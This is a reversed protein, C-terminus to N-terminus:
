LTTFDESSITNASVGELIAIEEGGARIITDGNNVGTGNTIRLNKFKLGDDLEMLDKNDRFDKIIDTGQNKGLKFVDKGGGGFLIDNGEGGDLLDRGRDGKIINDQSNGILEDNGKSGMIKQTNESPTLTNNKSSTQTQNKSQNQPSVSFNGVPRLEIRDINYGHNIIDLRLENKGAKLDLKGANFGNFNQWDGTNTIKVSTKNQGVSVGLFHDHPGIKHRAAYAVVQYTGNQPINVDYKLWEGREVNNVFYGNGNSMQKIDVNGNRYAGGSNGNTSDKASKYKEAQITIKSM